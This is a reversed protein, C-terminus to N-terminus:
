ASIAASMDGTVAAMVIQKYEIDLRAERRTVEAAIEEESLKGKQGRAWKSISKQANKRKKKQDPTLHSLNANPKDGKRRSANYRERGEDTLRYADIKERERIEPDDARDHEEIMKARAKETEYSLTAIVGPAAGNAEAKELRHRCDRYHNNARDYRSMYKRKLKPKVPTFFHSASWGISLKHCFYMRQGTLPCEEPDPEWRNGNADMFAGDDQITLPKAPKVDVPSTYPEPTPGRRAPEPKEDLEAELEAWFRDVEVREIAELEAKRAELEAIRTNAVAIRGSMTDIQGSLRSIYAAANPYTGIDPDSLYRVIQDLGARYDALDDHRRILERKVADLDTYEAPQPM